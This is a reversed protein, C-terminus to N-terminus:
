PRGDSPQPYGYAFYNIMEEIRVADPDPMQNSALFRRVNAYSAGDVDISFTTTDQKRTEMSANEDIHAYNAAKRDAMVGGAIGGIVGGAVGNKVMPSQAAVTIAEALSTSFGMTVDETTSASKVRVYRSLTNMGSLEFRVDYTGPRIDRFEYHGQADTVATHTGLTVTVGPLSSGDPLTVKGHVSGPQDPISTCCAILFITILINVNRM